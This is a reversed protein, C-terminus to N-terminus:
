LQYLGDPPLERKFSGGHYMVAGFLFGLVLGSLHAANNVGISTFGNYLTFIIMLGLQRTTVGALHGHNRLVIWLLAGVIGFVAGSAGASNVWPDEVIYVYYIVTVINAGIGCAIYAVTYKVHGLYQELRVGLYWLLLMNNFLHMFGFHMFFSTILRYYEGGYAVLSVLLSGNQIMYLSDSTSGEWELYIFFLINAALFIYTVFPVYRHYTTSYGADYNEMAKLRERNVRGPWM